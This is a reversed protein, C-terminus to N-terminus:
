SKDDEDGIEALQSAFAALQQTMFQLQDGLEESSELLERLVAEDGYEKRKQRIM